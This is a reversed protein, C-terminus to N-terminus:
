SLNEREREREREIYIYLIVKKEFVLCELRRVLETKFQPVFDLRVDWRKGNYSCFYDSVNGFLNSFTFKHVNQAMDNYCYKYLIAPLLVVTQSKKQNVTAPPHSAEPIKDVV